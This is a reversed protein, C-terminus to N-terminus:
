KEAENEVKEIYDDIMERLVTMMYDPIGNQGMNLRLPDIGYQTLFKSMSSNQNAVGRSINSKDVGVLRSAGSISFYVVGNSYNIEDKINEGIKEIQNQM